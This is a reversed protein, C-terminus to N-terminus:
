HYHYRKCLLILLFFKYKGKVPLKRKFNGVDLNYIYYIVKYQPIGAASFNQNYMYETTQFRSQAYFLFTTTIFHNADEDSINPFHSIIHRAISAYNETISLEFNALFTTTIFHNADEDSINPFHSIIHRAISAYNETISLEFNALVILNSKLNEPISNFDFSIQDANNILSDYSFVDDLTRQVIM